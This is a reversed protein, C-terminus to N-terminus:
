ASAKPTKPAKPKDVPDGPQWGAPLGLVSLVAIWRSRSFTAKAKVWRNVSVVTLGLRRALESQSVGVARLAAILHAPPVREDSPVPPPLADLMLAIM